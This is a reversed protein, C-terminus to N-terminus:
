KTVMKMLTGYFWNKDALMLKDAIRDMSEAYNDIDEVMKIFAKYEDKKQEKDDIM